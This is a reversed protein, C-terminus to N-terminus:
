EGQAKAQSEAYSFPPYKPPNEPSCCSPICEMQYDASANFFFPISYRPERNDTNNAFHKVSIFVDNTWQKLLEGTNVIFANEVVPAQIWCERKESYRTLGPADQALITIFTTDVHPSIGYEDSKNSTTRPYKTYRLRFMPTAFAEDFFSIPVELAECYIPLLRKALHELTTAYAKVCASFGPLLQEEPWQNDAWEINASGPQKKVIFAENANPKKRSPLKFNQFPLYGVGGIPWEPRDMRIKMKQNLPLDHFRKALEFNDKIIDPDIGHGVLYYFGVQTSAERLQKGLTLLDEHNPNTRYSSIDLIPIDEKEAPFVQKINWSESESQLLSEKKFPDYKSPTSTM